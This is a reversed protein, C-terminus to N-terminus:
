LDNRIKHLVTITEILVPFNNNRSKFTLFFYPFKAVSSRYSGQIHHFYSMCNCQNGNTQQKSKVM